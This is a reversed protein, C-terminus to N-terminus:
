NGVHPPAAHVDPAGRLGPVQGSHLAAATRSADAAVCAAADAVRGLRLATLAPGPLPLADPVALSFM